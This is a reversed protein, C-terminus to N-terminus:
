ALPPYVQVGNVYTQTVLGKVTQGSYPSNKGQSVFYAPTVDVAAAPDVVCLDAENGVVLGYGGMGIIAAPAATLARIVANRSVKGEAVLKLALPLLLELGSAGAESEAFPAQKAAVDHPLHQSVIADIVGSEIGALLAARDKDTRLPPRLHYMSDFDDIDADTLLLHHIAVDCTVNVGLEKAQAVLQVSKASSIQAIHLRAGTEEALLLARSLAISESVEPIGVLGLRTSIKGDAICGEGAFAADEPEIVVLMDHTCAYQMSRRLVQTSIQSRRNHCVAVCGAGKLGQYESLQLGEAGKTASAVPFVRSKGFEECKNRILRTIAETDNVPKSLPHSCLATVGGKVAASLESAFTGKQKYGPERLSVCLDAIGPLVMRGGLDIETLAPVSLALKKAAEGVAAIKGNQLLLDTAQDINNAPDLLHGNTLLLANM